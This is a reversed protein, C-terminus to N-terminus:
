LVDPENAYVNYSMNNATDNVGSWSTFCSLTDGRTELGQEICPATGATALLTHCAALEQLLSQNAACDRSPRLQLPRERYIPIEADHFTNLGRSRQSLM